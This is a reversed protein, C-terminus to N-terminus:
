WGFGAVGDLRSGRPWARGRELSLLSRASAACLGGVSRTSSPKGEGGCVGGKRWPAWGSQASRGWSLPVAARGAARFVGCRSTQAGPRQGSPRQRRSPRRSAAARCRDSSCTNALGFQKKGPVAERGGRSVGRWRLWRCLHGARAVRPAPVPQRQGM